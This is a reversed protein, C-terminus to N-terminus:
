SAAGAPPPAATAVPAAATGQARIDALITFQVLDRDNQEQVQSMQLRVNALDPVVSLRALLRAVGNQSYTSGSM